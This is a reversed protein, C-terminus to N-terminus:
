TNTVPQNVFCVHRVGAVALRHAFLRALSPTEALVAIFSAPPPPPSIPRPTSSAAHASFRSLWENVRAVVLAIAANFTLPLAAARSSPSTPTVGRGSSGSDGRSRGSGSSSGASRHWDPQLTLPLSFNSPFPPNSRSDEDRLDIVLIPPPPLLPSSLKSRASPKTPTHPTKSPATVTTSSAAEKARKAAQESSAIATQLASLNISMVSLAPQSQSFSHRMKRPKVIETEDEKRKELEQHAQQVLQCRITPHISRQLRVAESMWGHVDITHVSQTLFMLLEQMTAPPHTPTKKVGATHDNSLREGGVGSGGMIWRRLFHILAAPLLYFFCSEAYSSARRSPLSNANTEQNDAEIEDEDAEAEQAFLVDWIQATRKADFVHSWLSLAWAVPFLKIGPGGGMSDVDDNSIEFGLAGLRMTLKPAIFALLRLSARHTAELAAHNDTQFFPSFYTRNLISKFTAYALSEEHPAPFTWLCISLVSHLGQWYVLHPHRRLTVLLLRKLRQQTAVGIGMGGAGRSGEGDERDDAGAEIPPAHTQAIRKLDKEIQEMDINQAKSRAQLLDLSCDTAIHWEGVDGSSLGLLAPWMSRRLHSSFLPPLSPHISSAGSFGSPRRAFSLQLARGVDEGPKRGRSAMYRRTLISRVTCLLDHRTAPYLNFADKMRVLEDIGSLLTEHFPSRSRSSSSSLIGARLSPPLPISTAPANPTSGSSRRMRVQLEPKSTAEGEKQEDTNSQKGDANAKTTEREFVELEAWLSRLEQARHRLLAQRILVYIPILPVFGEWIRSSPPLAPCCCSSSSNAVCSAVSPSTIISLDHLTPRLPHDKPLLRQQRHEEDLASESVRSIFSADVTSSSLVLGPLADLPSIRAMCRMHVHSTHPQANGDASSIGEEVGVDGAALVSGGAEQERKYAQAEVWGRLSQGSTSEIASKWLDFVDKSTYPLLCHCASPSAPSLSPSFPQHCLQCITSRVRGPIGTGDKHSGTTSTDEMEEEGAGMGGDTAFVPKFGSMRFLPDLAIQNLQTAAANLGVTPTGAVGATSPTSRRKWVSRTNRRQNIALEWKKTYRDFFPHHIATLADIRSTPNPDLLLGLLDLFSLYTTRNSPSLHPLHHSLLSVRPATSSSSPTTSSKGDASSVAPPALNSLDFWCRICLSAPFSESEPKSAGAKHEPHTSPTPTETSPTPTCLQCLPHRPRPNHETASEDFHLQWVEDMMDGILSETSSTTGSASAGDHSETTGATTNIQAGSTSASSHRSRTTQENDRIEQGEEMTEEKVGSENTMDDDKSEMAVTKSHPQLPLSGRVLYLMLVGLQFIDASCQLPLFTPDHLANPGALLLEPAVFLPHIFSSLVDDVPTSAGSASDSGHVHTQMTVNNTWTDALRIRSQDDLRFSELRFIKHSVGVSHLSILCSLLSHGIFRLSPLHSGVEKWCSDLGKSWHESVIMMRGDDLAPNEDQGLLSLPALLSRAGLLGESSSSGGMAVMSTAAVSVTNGGGGSRKSRHALSYLTAYLRRAREVIGAHRPESNLIRSHVESCPTFISHLPALQIRLLPTSALSLLPSTSPSFADSAAALAAAATASLAPTPKTAADGQKKRAPDRAGGGQRSAQQQTSTPQPKPASATLRWLSM